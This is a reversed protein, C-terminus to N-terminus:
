NALVKDKVASSVKDLKDGLGGLMKCIHPTLSSAISKYLDSSQLAEVLGNRVTTGSVVPTVPLKGTVLRLEPVDALALVNQRPSAVQAVTDPPPAVGITSFSFVIEALRVIVTPLLPM